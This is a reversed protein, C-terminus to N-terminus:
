VCSEDNDFWAREKAWTTNSALSQSESENYGAEGVNRGGGSL